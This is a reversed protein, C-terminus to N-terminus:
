IGAFHCKFFRILLLSPLMAESRFLLCTNSVHRDLDNQLALSSEAIVDTTTALSLFIVKSVQAQSLRDAATTADGAMRQGM